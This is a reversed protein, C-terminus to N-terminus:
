QGEIYFTFTNKPGPHPYLWANPESAPANKFNNRLIAYGPAPLNIGMAWFEDAAIQLIEAMLANQGEPDATAKLEDYLEMQRKAAEVPEEGRPDGNYWYQWLEAFISENSYPFYWRPELVVDLGGDGGWVGAQHVNSEKREYFLSREIVNMQADIGVAQWYGVVLEIVDPQEPALTPIVDIAFSIRNGDPGLRYGDGDKEAFGADDLMQNALDVDYETYQKALQENYFPSTPRPALQYPEGQGVYILDIISQRDIAVSLAARFDHNQFIERLVPDEVTLNLAITVTNMSSPITETFTYDGAEQNDFYVAKNALAAIHRDQFDIEGNLTRLVLTEVDVGVDWQVYDIYPYQNGEPDVKFYYPNRVATVQVADATYGNELTWAWLQPQPTSWNGDGNVKLTWLDVWNDMGAEELLADIGDPNYDPHFQEAYHQPFQLVALGDPTALRQIFLGNPAAFTFKVTYDDIVEVTGVEGGTVMWNPPAPSAETNTAHAEYWFLIDNATFPEGDSWKMGERLHFIYETGEENAEWSKAVNPVVQTWEPDWRVLGEYAIHRTFNAGDGSGRLGLNWTRDTMSWSPDSYIGIENPTVVLPEAPLRDEVPPLEGAEVMAATMPSENYTMNQAGVFQVTTALILTLMVFVSLRLKKM